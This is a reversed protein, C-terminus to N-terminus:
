ERRALGRLGTGAVPCYDRRRIADDACNVLLVGLPALCALGGLVADPGDRWHDVYGANGANFLAKALRRCRRPVGCGDWM